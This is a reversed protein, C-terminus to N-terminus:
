HLGPLFARLRHTGVRVESHYTTCGKKGTDFKNKFSEVSETTVMDLPLDNWDDTVRNSFLINLTKQNSQREQGALPEEQTPLEQM